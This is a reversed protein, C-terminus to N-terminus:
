CQRYMGGPQSQRNRPEKGPKSGYRGYAMLEAYLEAFLRGTFCRAEDIDICFAFSIAEDLSVCERLLEHVSDVRFTM